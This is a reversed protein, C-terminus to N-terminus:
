TMGGPQEPQTTPLVVTFCTRGPESEVDITGNHQAVIDQSIRLGLGLGFEVRGQRTTFRLDFVKAMHEAAIGPGTDVIQVRVHEPDPVDSRVTLTGSGDMAQLANVILNTWIQNLKGPYGEIPPLEGYERVIAVGHAHHGLLVLTDELGENLDIDNGLEQGSRAYSRLSGVLDAIRGASAGINRLALGLDYFREISDLRTAVSSAEVPGFRQTFEEASGVGVKVLRRAIGPDLGAAELEVRQRREESTPLPSSEIGAQLYDAAGADPHLDALLGEVDEQLFDVARVIAAIPNNLEHGIGAALEGLTALKESEVLHTQTAALEELTASLRDRESQLATNLHEIENHQEVSRVARRAFSRLLVTTFHGALSPSAMLARNLDAYSVPIGTVDTVAEVDFFASTGLSLAILGIIRGSTRIHFTSREGAETRFLRM